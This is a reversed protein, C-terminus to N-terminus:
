RSFNGPLAMKINPPSWLNEESRLGSRSSPTKMFVYPTSSEPESQNSRTETALRGPRIAIMRMSHCAEALGWLSPRVPLIHNVDSGGIGEVSVQLPM